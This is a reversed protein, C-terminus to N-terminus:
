MKLLPCTRSNAAAYLMAGCCSLRVAIFAHHVTAGYSALTHLAFHGGLIFHMFNHMTQQTLDCQLIHKLTYYAAATYSPQEKASTVALM